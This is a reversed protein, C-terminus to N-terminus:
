GLSLFKTGIDFIAKNSGSKGEQQDGIVLTNVADFLFPRATKRTFPFM